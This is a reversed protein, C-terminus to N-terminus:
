SLGEVVYLDALNRVYSYVYASGDPVIRIGGISTVGSADAPVLQKWLKRQGTTLDVLWVDGPLQGIKQVYASKGDPLWGCFRETPAVGAIPVPEGGALPYFYAKKDPGTAAVSRGDPRARASFMRYGEPSIPKVNGSAFDRVYIRYGHSGETASVILASGDRTWNVQDVSLGPVDITMAEGVGTPYLRILGRDQRTVVAAARTSDPSLHQASGEGLRVAPSGDLKRIYVSYGAGGGEGSEDFLVLKGDESIDAPLGWDLWSLDIEKAGGPAMGLMAQRAKDQIVLTRGERTVDEVSLGGTAEALSRTRGSLTVANLYRNFGVRAGAFWIENGGPSWCLGAISAFDGTLERLKGSRDLIGVLGGDDGRVPHLLLAISQGDPSIRPHGLWGSYSFITKGIPYEVHTKGQVEKVIALAQGDPSWDAWLVDSAIERPAGGGTIGIRALTASRQFGGMSRSELGVAMEGAKSISMLIAGPLGFVRSDPSDLRTQFIELPKGEWAAAYYISQGDPGFRAQQILGNRFTLERFSPNGRSWLRRGAFLGGAAGVAIGGVGAALLPLFSRRTTTRAAVESVTTTGSLGSLAELDFAVDRASDFREEPNKELCHRVIRDLGPHVEKNTASLDPPEKTLIATITDAATDGRFARQGSLMEYLITGFAFIDSRRDAPKGRVQEPAMYGMTGLVVGPETAGSITRLDTQSGSEKEVKLKALGFDLIKVRGDKTLFVNEPKLDRHVIGKEHAAALGKALQVAWDLAKRVPIPGTSMRARLTEGELLETVIYPSGDGPNTGFDHVATINPHN